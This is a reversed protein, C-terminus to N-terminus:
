NDIQKAANGAIEVLKQDILDRSLWKGQLMLGKMERLASLDELPNAETLFFDAAKGVAISGWDAEAGFFQAPALTGMRLIEAPSLGSREMAAIERHLSFGPVNFLQPADSGLLLGHGNRALELILRLRIHDFLVWQQP